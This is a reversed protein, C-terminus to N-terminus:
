RRHTATAAAAKFAYLHSTTRVYLTGDAVAPTALIPEGLDNRALVQLSDQGEFVVVVGADSAAYIRGNAAVPSSYYGGPAGLRAEFVKTGTKADRSLVIGGNKVQYLRGHYLLPSPVEPIGRSDSWEVHSKTVDGKGGTRVALVRSQMYPGKVFETSAQRSQDWATRDFSESKGDSFFRLWRRLPLNGAGGSARRHTVLLTEPIEDIAIRGDQNRDHRIIEDFAPPLTVNDAEGQVGSASLFLLGDGAVPTACTQMPLDVLWWREKGDDLSHATFRGRNLVGVLIDQGEKWTLPTAWGGNFEPKPTKWATEGDTTRVALLYSEKELHVDLLLRDGALIPSMGTGQDFWTRAMPLPKKWRERGNVDYAVLGYSGFYAFVTEGDTVPTPAAPNNIAHVKEISDTSVARRWLIRGSARDLCLTELQKESEVFGTVFIRDGWVVPSSHGAPLAAKWLMNQNQGFEVPVPQAGDAVGAGGPGRFQPWRAPAEDAATDKPAAWAAAMLVALAVPLPQTMPM